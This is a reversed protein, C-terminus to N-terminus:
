VGGAEEDVGAEEFTAMEALARAAAVVVPMALAAESGEGLRMGFDLLPELGLHRLVVEHGPEASRHGAIMYDGVRPALGAALAAAALVVARSEFRPRLKGTVGALRVGLAELRGLSGPPKTLRGRRETAVELVAGDLPPIQRIKELIM